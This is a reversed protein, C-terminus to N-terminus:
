SAAPAALLPQIVREYISRITVDEMDALAAEDFEVNNDDAVTYLWELVDLSDIELESVHTDPDIEDVESLEKLKEVVEELTPM